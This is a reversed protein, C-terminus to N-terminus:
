YIKKLYEKARNRAESNEVYHVENINESDQGLLASRTKSDAGVKYLETNISKRGFGHLTNHEVKADICAQDLVRKLTTRSDPILFDDPKLLNKIIYNELVLAKEEFYYIYKSTMGNKLYPVVQGVKGVDKLKQRQIKIEAFIKGEDDLEFTIDSVKIGLFEGIRLSSFYLLYFVERFHENGIVDFIKYADELPTYKNRSEKRIEVGFNTDLLYSLDDKEDSTIMKEIRAHKILEKTLFFIHRKQKNSIDKLMTKEKILLICENSLFYNLDNKTQPYIDTKYISQYNRRTSERITGTRYKLYYEFLDDVNSIKQAIEMINKQKSKKQNIKDELEQKKKNVIEYYHEKVYQFNKFEPKKESYTFHFSTDDSLLISTNIYYRENKENYVIGKFKTKKM